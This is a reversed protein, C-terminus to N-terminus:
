RAPEGQRTPPLDIVMARGHTELRWCLLAVGGIAACGALVLFGPTIAGRAAAPSLAERSGAVLGLVVPAGLKAMGSSAHALAAGRASLRVPYLESGYPLLNTFGGDWFLAGALLCLFLLPLGGVFALPFSAALALIAAGAWCCILASRWRGILQPVLTFLLRGGLGAISIWIFWRAATAPPQGLVLSLFTPGWLAVGQAGMGLGLNVAVILWFRDPFALLAFLTDRPARVVPPPLAVPDDPIAVYTRVITEAAHGRGTAVLWRVSEPLVIYLLLALLLPSGGIFALGRWGLVPLLLGVSASALLVGVPAIVGVTSAIVTRYRTPSFEVLLALQATTVGSYGVGVVFRLVAFTVWAGDPIIGILGAATAYLCTSLLIIARRGIRDALWAMPLAGLVQGLGAALLITSTQGFTLRWLPGVVSVLFGVVFIDYFEIVTNVGLLAFLAWYRPTLRGEDLLDLLPRAPRGGTSSDPVRSSM